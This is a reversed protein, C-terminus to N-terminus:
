EDQFFRKPHDSGQRTIRIQCDRLARTAFAAECLALYYDWKRIFEPELGMAAAAPRNQLFAQRWRNLTLAYHDGINELDDVILRSHRTMAECLATLSPVQGGPFIHKKIWDSRKHEEIYASGFEHHDPYRHHGCDRSRNGCHGANKWRFEHTTM